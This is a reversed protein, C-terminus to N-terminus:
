LHYDTKFYKRLIHSICKKIYKDFEQSTPTYNNSEMYYLLAAATIYYRFWQFACFLMVMLLILLM